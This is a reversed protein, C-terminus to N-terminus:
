AIQRFGPARVELLVSEPIALALELAAAHRQRQFGGALGSRWAPEAAPGGLFYRQGNAFRGRNSGWWKDVLEADPWPLDEDPDMEVNEDDPEDTPGAEFGEPRDTELDEYALDVGTIMSFAEGAARANEPVSMQQILWSM